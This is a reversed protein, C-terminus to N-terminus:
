IKNKDPVANSREGTDNIDEDSSDVVFKSSFISSCKNGEPKSRKEKQPNRRIKRTPIKRKRINL